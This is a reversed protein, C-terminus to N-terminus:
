GLASAARRVARDGSGLRISARDGFQIPTPAAQEWSQIAAASKVEITIDAPTRLDYSDWETRPSKHLGLAAAVLFEALLGRATNDMLSSGSWRWYDLLRLPPTGGRFPEDGTRLAPTLRGLNSPLM